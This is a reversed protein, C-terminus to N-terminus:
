KNERIDVYDERKLNAHAFSPMTQITKVSTDLLFFALPCGTGEGLRMDMVLLPDLQLYASVSRYGPETSQHSAFAYDLVNPNLQQAVLLAAISIVGDVVFPCQQEACALYTGVMGLIDLGGVKRAVDFADAYPQHRDIMQEIINAKHKLTENSIGAGFGVVESSPLHLLQSILAVSTTTNGVGMEGTGFVTYGKKMLDKTHQYGVMIAQLAEKESMAPEQLANKTGYMVKHIAQRDLDQLCGIDVISVDAGVQEAIINIGAKGQLMNQGVQYTTSQPNASIGEQCIGNDAVFVIVIKKDLRIRGHFMAYLRAYINEMKGLAGLPKALSDCYQQGQKILDTNLPQIRSIIASLTEM